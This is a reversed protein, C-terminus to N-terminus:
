NDIGADRLAEPPAGRPADVAGDRAQEGSFEEPAANNEPKQLENNGNQVTPPANRRAYADIEQVQYQWDAIRVQADSYLFRGSRIQQAKAIAAQLAARDGGAALAEAEDLIVQDQQAELQHRWGDIEQQAEQGYPSTTPIQRAQAIALTLNQSGGGAAQAQAEELLQAHNIARQWHNGLAQARKYFANKPDIARIKNIATELGVVTNIESSTAYAVDLLAQADQWIKAEQPILQLVDLAVFVDQQLLAAEALDVFRLAIQNVTKRAAKAFASEPGLQALLDLAKVLNDKDGARAFRRAKALIREDAQAQFIRRNMAEYQTRSWYRNDVDLLRVMIAFARRWEGEQLEAEAKQYIAKGQAWIKRWRAIRKQVLHHVTTQAPIKQAFQIARELKGAHFAAETLDLAQTSWQNILPNIASRLPHNQGLADVLAIAALLDELTQHRAREQACYIRLSAPAFPWYVSACDPQEVQRQLMNFSMGGLVGSCVISAIAWMQWHHGMRVLKGTWSQDLEIRAEEDVPPVNSNKTM